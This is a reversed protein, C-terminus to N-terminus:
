SMRRGLFDSPFGQSSWMPEGGVGVGGLECSGVHVEFAADCIRRM